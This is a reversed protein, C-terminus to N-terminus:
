EKIVKILKSFDKGDSIQLNYIGDALHNIKMTYNKKEKSFAQSSDHVLKGTNDFLKIELEMPKLTNITVNIESSSPNPYIKYEATLNGSQIIGTCPDVMINIISTNTCGNVDTGTVTYVTTVSPSGTISTGTQNGPQWTYTSAGSANLTVSHGVCITTESASLNITPPLNVIVTATKNASVCSGVAGTVTYTTTVLPSVSIGATLAGTNWTYSSAGTAIINTNNGQCISQVSNSISVVPTAMVTVVQTSLSGPGFGNSAILSVTYPGPNTFTINPNQSSPTNINVGGGPSVSWSWANPTNNSGDMFQKAVGQCISGNFNFSSTPPSNSPVVDVEFVGRGYTAARLRTSLAPSIELDSVPANPLNANYLTWTVALNDIYYVGVDMGVYVRGNTGPEYVICNAPLNPLNYSINTWSTGGNTSKFVKNGGSYGSLTVYIINANTPDFCVNTPAASGVPLTGTINTWSSGANTSKLVLPTGHLCVLVSNNSPAIAFEVVRQGTNIGPLTGSQAWSGGSNTSKFMQTRGAYLTAATVPDQKWPAVWGANGSMGSTCSSWSAGGNTSRQFQGSYYSAYMKNNNTRDIFCDMGDGAMSANYTGNNYINSGNDQHGTIWLNPSLTSLGIKYIQAINRPSTLDTWSSGTYQFIGGDNASYLTGTTTYELEHHDAHVYPPNGTGIWCGIISWNTGGNTSRYVNVGGTVIENANIPSAAFALDYWGQGDSGPSSCSNALVNPSNAMLSFSTGNNTSRYVGQLNNATSASLVYVYSANAPTVAINMRTSGSTPIGNSIQTFSAGGNTSVSFTTGAAYVTNPDTPKFEVDYSNSSNIQTWNTGGNTTRYVGVNTAALLIQPNSPNIILRRMRRQQSVAFTLGTTNWTIGGDLSKLVGICYTDGADGDGTALYLINTNSPDVVLDSAGIVSLSNTNTTWTSGNNTTKWLGGAPAGCWYTNAITPHFTIFNDRGAKRPFGNNAVGSMPGFPGMATWTTSATLNEGGIENYKGGGSQTNPFAENFNEWTKSVLSLNGSPYVRPEMFAEWRKFQKYGKGKETIDKDKWYENFERQIDYFNHGPENMMEIWRQALINGGFLTIVLLLTIKKM